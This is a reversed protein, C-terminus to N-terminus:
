KNLLRQVQPDECIECLTELKQQFTFHEVPVITEKAVIEDMREPLDDDVQPRM